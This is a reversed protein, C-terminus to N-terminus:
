STGSVLRTICDFTYYDAYYVYEYVKTAGAEIGAKRTTQKEHTKERKM